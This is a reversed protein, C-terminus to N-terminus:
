GIRGYKLVIALLVEESINARRKYCKETSIQNGKIFYAYHKKGTPSTRTIAPGDKRHLKENWYWEEVRVMSLDNSDFSLMAPGDKRSMMGRGDYFIHLNPIQKDWRGQKGMLGM